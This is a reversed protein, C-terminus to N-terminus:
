IGEKFYLNLTSIPLHLFAPINFEDIYKKKDTPYFLIFPAIPDV